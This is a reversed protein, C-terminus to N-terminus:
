PAASEQFRLYKAATAAAWFTDRPVSDKGKRGPFLYIEFGTFGHDQYRSIRGANPTTFHTRRLNSPRLFNSDLDPM